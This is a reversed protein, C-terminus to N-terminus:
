SGSVVQFGLYVDIYRAYGFPRVRVSVNMKSTSVINQNPDIYCQVGRDKPDTADASLEGNATMQTAIANEVLMQWTKVMPAQMTGNANVPIEDLLQDLLTDYAIRFAKDITRRATLHNYDDTGETALSDDNFFYGSRGIYTRFTIYGKDHVSAVDALEAPTTKLYGRVISLPGDKVRGINRQVPVSAIRGSIIGMAQNNGTGTTNGIFVAVRNDTGQTLDALDGPTGTYGFGEVIVFVPAFMTDAAYEALAQANTIALTVDPDFGDSAVFSYGLTPTRSIVIGRIKGAAAQILKKAYDQTKDVMDSLKVTDPFAMIWVETGEGAEDYFDKVIQYLSPNNSSTVGLADLMTLSRLTYATSLAFTSAVAVGTAVIGLCGDPSPVVQNLAGNEFHIKIRPLM